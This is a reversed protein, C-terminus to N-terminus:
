KMEKPLANVLQALASEKIAQMSMQEGKVSKATHEGMIGSQMIVHAVLEAAVTLNVASAITNENM